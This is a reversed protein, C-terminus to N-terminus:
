RGCAETNGYPIGLQKGQKKPEGSLGNVRVTIQSPIRRDSITQIMTEANLRQPLSFDSPPANHVIETTAAVIEGYLSPLRLLYLDVKEQNANHDGVIPRCNACPGRDGESLNWYSRHVTM